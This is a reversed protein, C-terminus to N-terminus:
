LSGRLFTLIGKLDYTTRQCVCLPSPTTGEGKKTSRSGQSLRGPPVLYPSPAGYPGISLAVFWVVMSSRILSTIHHASCSAAKMFTEQSSRTMERTTSATWWNVSASTAPFVELVSWNGLQCLSSRSYVKQFGFVPSSISMSAHSQLLENGARQRHAQGCHTPVGNLSRSSTVIKLRGGISCLAVSRGVLCMLCVFGMFRLASARCGDGGDAGSGRGQCLVVADTSAVATAACRWPLGTRKQLKM